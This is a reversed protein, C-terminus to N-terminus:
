RRRIFGICAVVPAIAIVALLLNTASTATPGLWDELTVGADRMGPLAGHLAAIVLRGTWVGAAATLFLTVPAGSVLYVPVAAAAVVVIVAAASLGASIATSAYGYTLVGLFVLLAAARLLKPAVAAATLAAAAVAPAIVVALAAAAATIDAPVQPLYGVAWETVAAAPAAVSGLARDTGQAWPADAGAWYALVAAASYVLLLLAARVAPM